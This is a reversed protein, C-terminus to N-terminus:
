LCAAYQHRHLGVSLLRLLYHVDQVAVPSHHNSLSAVSRLGRASCAGSATGLLRDLLSGALPPGLLLLPLWHLAFCAVRM